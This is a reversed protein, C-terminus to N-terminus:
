RCPAAGDVTPAVVRLVRRGVPHRAHQYGDLIQDDAHHLGMALRGALDAARRTNLGQSLVASPHTCTPPTAPSYCPDPAAVPWGIWIM